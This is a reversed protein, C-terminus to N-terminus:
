VVSKRDLAELIPRMAAANAHEYYHVRGAIMLVPVGSLFGAVVERAHGSVGGSPFGPLDAFPIHVAKDLEGSLGGLGSGLVIALRPAMGGLRQVLTDTAPNM